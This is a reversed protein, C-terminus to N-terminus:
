WKLKFHTSVPRHDSFLYDNYNNPIVEHGIVTVPNSGTNSDQPAFIFDIVSQVDTSEFGTYTNWNQNYHNYAKKDTDALKASITQYSADSSLSNFDGSLFVPYDNPIQDIWDVILSASKQRAEESTQDFHTNLFNVIKGSQKHQLTTFTVIRINSAGWAKSPTDPTPSLWKYSGNLLNWDQTNYIIAAYEGAEKGDDRGVGYHNYPFDENNDGNLGRKIDVLQNHKAEQISILTPYDSIQSKIAGVAGDKRQSWGKESPFRKSEPSDVRVNNSYIRFEFPSDDRKMFIKGNRQFFNNTDQALGAKVFFSVCIIAFFFQISSKM